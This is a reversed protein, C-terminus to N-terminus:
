CEFKSKNRFKNNFEQRLVIVIKNFDGQSITDSDNIDIVSHKSKRIDSVITDIQSINYFKGFNYIRPKFLGKVIQTYRVSWITIDDISRFKNSSTVKYERYNQGMVNIFESKLISYPIHLDYIRTFRPLFLLLMTYLNLPGNKVNFFKTFQKKLVSFKNFNKNIIIMNNTLIHDFDEVPMIANFGATDRPSGDYWFFDTPKTVDNLFMDDNFLVFHESLGEINKLNVEIASSNFTPLYQHPIFDQHNIIKLKNHGINLWEPIQNDTVFYINNVWPAYKEVSRFWYRLLKYDRFRTEEKDDNNNQEFKKRKEIWESDSGDVWTIVFDIPFTIEKQM